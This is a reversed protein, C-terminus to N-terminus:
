ETSDYSSPMDPMANARFYSNGILLIDESNPDSYNPIGPHDKCGSFSIIFILCILASRLYKM